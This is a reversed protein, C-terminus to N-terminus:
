LESVLVDYTFAGTFTSCVQLIFCTVPQAWFLLRCAYSQCVVQQQVLKQLQEPPKHGDDTSPSAATVDPPPAADNGPESGAHRVFICEYLVPVYFLCLNHQYCRCKNDVAKPRWIVSHFTGSTTTCPMSAAPIPQPEQKITNNILVDDTQVAFCM